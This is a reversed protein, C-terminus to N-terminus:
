SLKMIRIRVRVQSARDSIFVIACFLLGPSTEPAKENFPHSEIESANEERSGTDV